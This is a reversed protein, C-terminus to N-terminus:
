ELWWPFWYTVFMISCCISCFMIIMGLRLMRRFLVFMEIATCSSLHRQNLYFTIKLYCYCGLLIWDHIMLHLLLYMMPLLIYSPLVMPNVKLVLWISLQVGMGYQPFAVTMTIKVEYSSSWLKFLKFLLLSLLLLRWLWLWLTDYGCTESWLPYLLQISQLRILSMWGM